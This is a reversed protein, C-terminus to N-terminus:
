SIDVVRRSNNYIPYLVNEERQIRDQLLLGVKEFEEIFMDINSENIPIFPNQTLFTFISISINKMESFFEGVVKQEINSKNRALIKLYSYLHDDEVQIHDTFSTAFEVLSLQVNSYEKSRASILVKNFLDLIQEHDSELSSILSMDFAPLYKAPKQSKKTTSSKSIFAETTLEISHLHVEKPTNIKIIILHM